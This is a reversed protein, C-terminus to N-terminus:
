HYGTNHDSKGQLGAEANYDFLYDWNSRWQHDGLLNTPRAELDVLNHVADWRRRRQLCNELEYIGLPRLCISRLVM